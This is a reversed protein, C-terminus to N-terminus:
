EDETEDEAPEDQAVSVGSQSVLTGFPNPTGLLGAPVDTPKYEYNGDTIFIKSVTMSGALGGTSADYSLSLTDLVAREEATAIKRLADKMPEYGFKTSMSASTTYAYYRTQEGDANPADFEALLVPLQFSVSDIEIGTAERLNVAFMILDEVRVSEPYNKKESTITATAEKIGTNYVALNAEFGQLEELRPQLAATERDLAETMGNFKGVVFFYTLVALILGFFILLVNTDKKSLNLGKM